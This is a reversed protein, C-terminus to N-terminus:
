SDKDLSYVDNVVKYRVLTLLISCCTAHDKNIFHVNIMKSKDFDRNDITVDMKMLKPYQTDLEALKKEIDRKVADISGVTVIGKDFRNRCYKYIELGKLNKTNSSLNMPMTAFYREM